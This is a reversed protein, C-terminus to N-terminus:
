SSVDLQQLFEEARPWPGYGSGPNLHGVAGLEVCEAAWDLAMRRVRGISALPDDLSAAVIARFGLRKRPVPLWGNARLAELGPYPAPMPTEFDPPVALLAGRVLESAGARVSAWHAVTLCGASHAVLLAPGHVRGIAEDLAAVRQARDLADRGMPAVALVERGRERLGAELLSQWHRPAADRLGPVIVVTATM